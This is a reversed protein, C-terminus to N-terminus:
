CRTLRRVDAQSTSASVVLLVVLSHSWAGRITGRQGSDGRRCRGRGRYVMATEEVTRLTFDAEALIFISSESTPIAATCKSLAKSADASVKGGRLAAAPLAKFIAVNM